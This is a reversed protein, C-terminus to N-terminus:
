KVVVPNIPGGTGGDLKLPAAVYMFEYKGDEACDDALDQLWNLESIPIGLDRIFAPHLPTRTGTEESVVQEASISDTGYLAIDADAFWEALEDTYTPGPERLIESGAFTGGYEEYYADEGQDYFVEIAGLRVLLVDADAVDVDQEDACTRLEDVTVREDKGLYDVGRHRPIDLLVGKGVLLAAAVAFDRM